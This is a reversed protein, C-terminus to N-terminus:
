GGMGDLIQNATKIIVKASAKINDVAKEGAWGAVYGFSYDDSEIGLNACVIYAVSEAELEMLHREYSTEHMIAHGLEHALTKTQQISDNRSEIVIQKTGHNCYGNPGDLIEMSVKFGIGTAVKVLNDYIVSDAEGSLKHCVEPLEEGDTQSIDFVPVTRFGIMKQKEIGQADIEKKSMPALIWIAKEGKRVMRNLKIWSKFGAVRTAEPCQIMILMTNNFSYNHFRAQVSLYRKWNDSSLLKEIGATLSELLEEKNNPM